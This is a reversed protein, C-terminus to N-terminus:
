PGFEVVKYGALFLIRKIEVQANASAEALIGNALASEQFSTLAKQRAISELDKAAELLIGDTRFAVYTCPPDRDEILLTDFIMPQPLQILVRDGNTVVDDATLQDLDIGATVKGCAVLVVRQEQKLLGVTQSVDTVTSLFFSTTQLRAQKTILELVPPLTIATPTPPQPSATLNLLGGSPGTIVQVIALAIIVLAAFIGLQVACGIDSLRSGGRGM